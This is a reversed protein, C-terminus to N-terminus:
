SASNPATLFLNQQSIKEQIKNRMKQEEIAMNSDTKCYKQKFNDDILCSTHTLLHIKKKNDKMNM